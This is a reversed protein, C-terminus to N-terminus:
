RSALVTQAAHLPAAVVEAMASGILVAVLACGFSIAAFELARANQRSSDHRTEVPRPTTRRDRQGIATSPASVATADPDTILSDAPILDQTQVGFRGVDSWVVRAVIVYSGRRIELYSGRNPSQDSRVLLGKSSMNLILADSWHAGNRMRAQIM